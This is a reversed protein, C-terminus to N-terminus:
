STQQIGALVWGGQGNVPKSLNWVEAFTTADAAPDEKILGTFRVSALYDNGVTEVGLVEADLKVVDTVNASAGREQLELRFEAFMETTTFERIDDLDAKDWAAQLRIFYTKASRTFALVDFDAPLTWTGANTAMVPAASGLVSSSGYSPQQLGSGIEPTSTKAFPTQTDFRNANADTNANGYAAVAPMPGANKRKYMRYLFMGVVGLLAIMLLSGLMGGMAGGLGLSSMLAGLGLGLAAGGLIGRWPSAPKAAAAAGGAAAPAAAAPPTASRQAPASQGVNSSQRGVSSGGGLRKADVEPIVMTVSGLAILASLIVKKM